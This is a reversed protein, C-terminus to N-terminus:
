HGLVTVHRFAQTAVDRVARRLSAASARWPAILAGRESPQAMSRDHSLDCPLVFVLFRAGEALVLLHQALM